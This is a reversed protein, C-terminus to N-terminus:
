KLDIKPKFPLGSISVEAVGDTIQINHIDLGVLGGAIAPYVRPRPASFAVDIANASRTVRMELINDQAIVKNGSADSIGDSFLQWLKAVADSVASGVGDNEFDWAESM